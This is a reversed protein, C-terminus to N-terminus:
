KKNCGNCCPCPKILGLLAILGSIGVVGYVAKTATTGEGLLQSVWNFDLFAVLGWNLAGLGVVLCVIKCIVCKSM